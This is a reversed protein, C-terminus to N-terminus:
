AVLTLPIEKDMDVVFLSKTDRINGKFKLGVIVGPKDLFRLDNDDGNIVPRGMFEAPMKGKFVVAMNMNLRLAKEVSKQYAPEGSYSFTLHHNANKSVRPMKTYNYFQIDPFDSYVRSFDIDSTGNLRVVPILGERKAKRILAYIAKYLKIYFQIPDNKYLETKALRARYVSDMAGRGAWLLCEKQCNANPSNPCIEDDPVLYLIGTLYGQKVGKITKADANVSLM